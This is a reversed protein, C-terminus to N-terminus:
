ESEATVTQFTIDLKKELGFNDRVIFRLGTSGESENHYYLTFLQKLPDDANLGALSKLEYMERNELRYGGADYVEGKGRTQVYGVFYESHKYNGERSLAFRIEVMEDPAIEEPMYWTSIDFDYATRTEIKDNCSYFFSVVLITM